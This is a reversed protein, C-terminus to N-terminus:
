STIPEEISQHPLWGAMPGINPKKAYEFMAEMDTMAIPRIILRKTELTKM